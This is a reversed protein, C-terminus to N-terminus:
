FLNFGDLFLRLAKRDIELIDEGVPLSFRGRLLRKTLLCYGTRDWFLAKILSRGSNCFIFVSDTMSDQKLEDELLALLGAQGKRLDVAGCYLEIRTPFWNGSM